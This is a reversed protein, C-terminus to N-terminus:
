VEFESVQGAPWGTNATFTLMVLRQSTAGFTIAVTNGSSPDFTYGASPKLTAYSAGDVSGVVSLTQTRTAWAAAPPLKLVLRSV